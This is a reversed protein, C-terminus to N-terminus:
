FIIEKVDFKRARGSGVEEVVLKGDEMVDKIRGFFRRGDGSLSFEHEEELLYLNRMYDMNLEKMKGSRLQLYRKELRECIMELVNKLDSENGTLLKMSTVREEMGGFSEQNVNLGVGLVTSSIQEDRYLNEILIGAIKKGDVYIDNPWKIKVEHTETLVQTLLDHLAVSVMMSLYFSNIAKLFTPHYVVSMTINKKEESYWVNGRQGRGATQKDTIVVTGEHVKVEKLLEIAYTNVSPCEPLRIINQGTFLTQM